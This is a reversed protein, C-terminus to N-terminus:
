SNEFKSNQNEIEEPKWSAAARALAGSTQAITKM